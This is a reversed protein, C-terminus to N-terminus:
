WIQTKTHDIIKFFVFIIQFWPMVFLILYKFNDNYQAVYLLIYIVHM